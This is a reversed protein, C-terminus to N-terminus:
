PGGHGVLTVSAIRAASIAGPKALAVALTARAPSTLVVVTTGVLEALSSTDAASITGDGSDIQTTSKV